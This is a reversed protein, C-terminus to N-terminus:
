FIPALANMFNHEGLLPWNVEALAKGQHLVAFRTAASGAAIQASWDAGKGFTERVLPILKETRGPLSDANKSMRGGLRFKLAKAGSEAVIKQVVYPKPVIGGNGVTAAVMAMQLPTALMTTQGFALRGADVSNPDKPDYLHSGKYLGSPSRECLKM